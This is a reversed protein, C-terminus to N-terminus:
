VHFLLYPQSTGLILVALNMGLSFRTWDGGREEWSGCVEAKTQRLLDRNWRDKTLRLATPM